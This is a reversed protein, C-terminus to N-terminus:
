YIENIYLNPFLIRLLYWSLLFQKQKPLIPKLESRIRYKNQFKVMKKFCYLIKDTLTYRVDLYQYLLGTAGGVIGGAFGTLPVVLEIPYEQAYNSHLDFAGTSALLSGSLICYGFILKNISIVPEPLTLKIQPSDICLSATIFLSLLLLLKSKM